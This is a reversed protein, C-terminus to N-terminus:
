YGVLVKKKQELVPGLEMTSADTQLVFPEAEPTFQHNMSVNQTWSFPITKQTLHHLQPCFEQHVM